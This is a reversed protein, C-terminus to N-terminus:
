PARELSLFQGALELQYRETANDDGVRTIRLSQPDFRYGGPRPHANSVVLLLAATEEWGTQRAVAIPYRRLREPDLVAAHALLERWARVEPARQRLEAIGQAMLANERELAAARTGQLIAAEFSRGCFVAGAALVALAVVALIGTTRM